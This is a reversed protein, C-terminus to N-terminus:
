AAKKQTQVAQQVKPLSIVFTTHAQSYDVFLQGHHTEIIGKSISLGIGTGKGIDKTTFFPNFIKKAVEAPIGLGSDIVRIEATQDTEAVVVKIWKENLAGIADASNGILNILVQSIQVERCEVTIDTDSNEITLQIEGIKLKESCLELTERLIGSISAKQFPDNQGDRSFYRLAKIIKSIRDGMKEINSLRSLIFSMETPGEEIRKQMMEATLIIAGLPSNIEHAVGGAMEGLAAMKAIETQQARQQELQSTREQVIQELNENTELITKDRTEILDLMRDFETSLMRLDEIDIDLKSSHFRASYDGSSVRRLVKSLELFYGAVPKIASCSIFYGFAISAFLIAIVLWSYNLYLANLESRDYLLLLTGVQDNGSRIPVTLAGDDAIKELGEATEVKALAGYGAIIKQNNDIVVAGGVIEQGELASLTSIVEHDDHFALPSALNAALVKSLVALQRNEGDRITYINTLVFAITSIALVSGATVIITQFLRKEFTAAKSKM